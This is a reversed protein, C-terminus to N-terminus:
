ASCSKLASTQRERESSVIVGFLNAAGPSIARMHTDSPENKRKDCHSGLPHRFSETITTINLPANEGEHCVGLGYYKHHEVNFRTM